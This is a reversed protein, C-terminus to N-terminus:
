FQVWVAMQEKVVFCSMKSTTGLRENAKQCCMSFALTTDLTDNTRQSRFVFNPTTGMQKKAVLM